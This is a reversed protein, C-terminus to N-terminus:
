RSRSRRSRPGVAAGGRACGPSRRLERALPIISLALTEHTFHRQAASRQGPARRPSHHPSVQDMPLTQPRPHQADRHLPPHSRAARDCQHLHWAAPRAAGISRVLNRGCQAVVRQDAHFAPSLPSPRGPLGSDSPDYAYQQQRRDPAARPRGAHRSRDARPVPPVRHRSSAPHDTWTGRRDRRQLGCVSETTGHRKDDHTRREVQGPRLPLMPHTRDLAQIQTKEDVSLVLANDPPDLYFGVVDIVKEAFQPDHSLKFTKLRHPKVDAAQWVQRVQWQTVGAYRAMLRTSWHTAEMPVRETTLFLIREVARGHLVTPRGSRARDVLGALGEALYRRHWLHVTSRSVHLLKATDTASRGADRALLIRERRTQGSPTTPRRLWRKLTDRHDPRLQFETTTQM